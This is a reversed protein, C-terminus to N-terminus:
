HFRLSLGILVSSNTVTLTAETAGILRVGFTGGYVRSGLYTTGAVAGLSLRPLKAPVEKVVEKEHWRDVYVIKEVIKTEVRTVVIKERDQTKFDTEETKEITGDPKFLESYRRKSQVLKNKQLNDVSMALAVKKEFEKKQEQEKEVYKITEKNGFNYGAIFSSVALIIASGILTRSVM